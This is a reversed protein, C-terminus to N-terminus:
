DAIEYNQPNLLWQNLLDDCTVSNKKMEKQTKKESTIQPINYDEM